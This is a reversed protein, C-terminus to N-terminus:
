YEWVLKTVQAEDVVVDEELDESKREAQDLESPTPSDLCGHEESISEMM